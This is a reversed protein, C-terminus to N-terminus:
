QKVLVVKEAEKLVLKSYFDKLFQYNDPLIMPENFELIAVTSIKNANQTVQYKFVGINDPLAIALPEPLKEVTYGAPIEINVRHVDRWATAFDVPYKREELKFPNNRATLFLLPEVYVKDNIQEVLDESSFKITRTLALSVDDKNGIKYEEIEIKYAEELKAKLDEDKLHNQNRRITLANLNENKTRLLGEISLDDTMKVMMFNEELAHKSATLNVWASTGDKQVIRGQWNLARVPLLNPSSYPETADLLVYSNDPFQVIGIVYDFGNLTPFLPVGNGRSSILVPNANLGAERLMAILILNIDAVNGVNEKYAKRVGNDAYKSYFGNWKMKNKVFHFIAGVKEPDSKATELIKSLDDSYYGSKNLESGFSEYEFIQKSVQEWTRTYSKFEGGVSMFNTQALEFMAAGRYNDINAVYSENNKLAPINEAEYNYTNSIYTSSGVLFTKSAKKLPVTYYGKNLINFAYFEPIELKAEMKKVPVGLQFRVDDISTAYPSSLTYKFEIICGESIKPLTIKFVANYKNKKEKFMGDKSLKEKEVKGNELYYTYGSVNYVSESDGSDPSYYNITKNAYDFGEKTYIKIRQHVETILDFGGKTQNFDFYSRRYNYLYAAEATSDIPHFKEELEEKSVKGFKYDQSFTITQILVVLLFAIKKIM